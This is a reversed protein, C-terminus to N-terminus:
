TSILMGDRQINAYMSLGERTKWHDVDMVIVSLLVDYNLSNRAALRVIDSRKYQSSTNMLVLLDIDSDVGSEGRAKSGYLIVEYLQHSYHKSLQNLFEKVAETERRTLLILDVPQRQSM